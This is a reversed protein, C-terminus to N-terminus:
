HFTPGVVAIDQARVNVAYEVASKQIMAKKVANALATETPLRDFELQGGISHLHGGADLSGGFDAVFVTTGGPSKKLRLAFANVLIRPMMSARLEREAALSVGSALAGAGIIKFLNRRDPNAM